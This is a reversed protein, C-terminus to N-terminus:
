NGLIEAQFIDSLMKVNKHLEFEKEVLVRGAAGLAIAHDKNQYANMIANALAIADAPPVLYGTEGDIILEPIGSLSSSVVPLGSALAEMISVPIGEMKGSSTIVSSQIYCDAESLYSAVIDQPQPGLLLVDDTLKYKDIMKKIKKYEKGGGIIKCCFTIGRRKLIVCAEILYKFGKYPQLSGISILNYNSNYKKIRLDKAYNILNIGCHIVHTKRYVWEGFHDILYSRNYESIARIIQASKIKEELMTQEVFIDHAHVTISYSINTFKMVIWAVLSTHTAYHAHIHEIKEKEMLRAIYVAKPFLLVARVLFKPNSINEIVCKFLITLYKKPASRFRGLNEKVIQYSLFPSFNAKEFWPQAEKHIVTQNQKILPYLSIKWGLMELADMERLIFTEPLHPFRSVIYGLKHPM